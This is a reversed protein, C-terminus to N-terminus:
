RAVPSTRASSRRVPVVRLLLLIGAIIAYIGPELYDAKVLWLFHLIGLALIAYALKHLTRWRRGLRRISAQNSTVALPILLLFGAFGITIYPRELIDEIMAGPDLSHDFVLWIAFHCSVYFFVYLGLMRRFRLWATNKTWRGLPSVALTLLLWRLGWEGTEHTMTEVPNAGLGSNFLGWVLAAAPLLCLLHLAPKSYRSKLVVSLTM